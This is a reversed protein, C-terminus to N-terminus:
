FIIHSILCFSKQHCGSFELCETIFSINLSSQTGGSKCPEMQQLQMIERSLPCGQYSYKIREKFGLSINSRILEPHETILCNRKGPHLFQNIVIIFSKFCSDFYCMETFLWYFFGFNDALDSIFLSIYDM